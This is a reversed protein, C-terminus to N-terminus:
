DDGYDAGRYEAPDIVAYHTARTDHWSTNFATRIVDFVIGKGPAALIVLEEDRLSPPKKCRKPMPNYKLKTRKM